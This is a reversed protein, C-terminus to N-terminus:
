IAYPFPLRASRTSRRHSSYMIRRFHVIHTVAKMNMAHGVGELSASSTLAVSILFPYRSLYMRLRLQKLNSLFLKKIDYRALYYELQVARCHKAM